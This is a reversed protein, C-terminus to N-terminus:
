QEFTASFLVKRCTCFNGLHCLALTSATFDIPMPICDAEGFGLTIHPRFNKFSSEDAYNKIWHLSIEEVAPPSFIMATSVGPEFLPRLGTMVAEHLSQLERTKGIVFESVTEGSPIASGRCREASLKLTRFRGACERVIMSADSMRSDDIVGMALSIHPLCTAPHLVIKGGCGLSLKRSVAVARGTMAGDPLLVADVATKGM